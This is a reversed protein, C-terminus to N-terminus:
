EGFMDDLTDFLNSLIEDDDIQAEVTELKPKNMPKTPPPKVAPSSGGMYRGQIIALLLEPYESFLQELDCREVMDLLQLGSKIDDLVSDKHEVRLLESNLMPMPDNDRRISYGIQLCEIMFPAFKRNNLLEETFEYLLPYKSDDLEYRRQWRTM